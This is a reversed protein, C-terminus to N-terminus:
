TDDGFHEKLRRWLRQNNSTVLLLDCPRPLVDSQTNEGDLTQVRKWVEHFQVQGVVGYFPDTPTEEAGTWRTVGVNHRM